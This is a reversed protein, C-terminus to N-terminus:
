VRPSLSLLKILDEPIKGGWDKVEQLSVGALALQEAQEKSMIRRLGEFLERQEPNM